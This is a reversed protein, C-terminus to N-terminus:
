VIRGFETDLERFSHEVFVPRGHPCFSSLPFEDMQVLLSQMEEISLSQGARVSSHCAMTAFIDGLKKELVMTDGHDQIETAMKELAKALAEEKLLVPCSLVYLTEPGGQELVIGMTKLQSDITLLNEIHAAEMTLSLPILFSQVELSQKTKWARMLREFNIREHAAHQDVFMVGRSSQAVIYTLNAQGLVQLASWLPKVDLPKEFVPHPVAASPVATFNYTKQPALTELIQKFTKTKFQTHELDDSVFTDQVHAIALEESPNTIPMLHPQAIAPGLTNELWPAKELENRIGYHVLRFVGRADSFKVQSKTPSVNVDVDETPVTIFVVATPYEGHMLLNRFAEMVAAQLSRDQIWRQNVFFWMNQSTKEVDSPSTFFMQAKYSSGENSAEIMNKKNLVDEVRKLWSTAPWHLQLENDVYVRFTVHPNALALAKLTKKTQLVEASDAKLFKLRAPVNEFLRTVEISTGIDGGIPHIDSLVGFEASQRSATLDKKTRTTITLQSVAASSALAEGRFGFTHLQWLDSAKTIKSTAHREFALPLDEISMGLGNDKVLINRAGKSIHVELDTAGADLSNEVLEKVLNAPRELVEGAAIQDVVQPPLRQIPAQEMERVM